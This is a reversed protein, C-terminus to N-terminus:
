AQAGRPGGADRDERETGEDRTVQAQGDVSALPLVKRSSAAALLDLPTVAIMLCLLHAPLVYILFSNTEFRVVIGGDGKGAIVGLPM